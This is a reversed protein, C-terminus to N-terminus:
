EAGDGATAMRVIDESTVVCLNEAAYAVLAEFARWIAEREEPPRPRSPDPADLDYPPERPIRQKPDRYFIGAWPTGGKRYFNNEHILVTIFPPRPYEWAGLEEVLHALPDYYEALPGTIANWWFLEKEVGPARWRTISFDSPRVLLGHIWQFPREPDTGTEHYLLTMRAGLEAYIPLILNRWRAHPVSAVVPPKGFVRTLLTFGGPQERILGGTRLDLRYTEYDRLVRAAEEPPLGRLIGDFGPTAPHPPRVHYSITMGSSVLREIVDPRRDLYAWVQPGTLYFDGRVGYKEFLDILRLVTDASEDVNVFDHVNVVFTIYARCGDGIEEQGTPFLANGVDRPDIGPNEEEWAAFADAMGSFTAWRVVGAAVLPDVVDSLFRELAELPFGPHITIHFVNVRDPRAAALSRKLYGGVLELWAAAGREPGFERMLRRKRRPADPDFLGVPLYVIPGNPDHAAFASMDEPDPGGAPRWPNVGLVLENHSQKRPNKWDSYVDLGACAAAELVGPYLNGGSWYRIRGKVGAAHILEIEERMARCWEEPPLREPNPGLHAEEHFHLGIEHGRAELDALITDGTEAVVRTFPSQVQVVLVGGHREVLAALERLYRVHQQFLKPDAYDGRGSRYGQATIGLPEVHIGIAFLLVAEGAFAVSGMLIVAALILWKRWM